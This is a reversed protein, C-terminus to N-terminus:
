YFQADFTTLLYSDLLHIFPCLSQVLVCVAKYLRIFLCIIFSQPNYHDLSNSSFPNTFKGVRHFIDWSRNSVPQLMRPWNGRIM